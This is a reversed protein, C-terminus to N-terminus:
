YIELCSSFVPPAPIFEPTEAAHLAEDLEEIGNVDGRLYEQLRLSTEELRAALGANRRQIIELGFPKASSLWEKRFLRDFEALTEQYRPLDSVILDRLGADQKEAYYKLLKERFSFGCLILEMVVVIERLSSSLPQSILFQHAEELDKRYMATIERYKSFCFSYIGGQLPDQWFLGPVPIVNKQFMRHLKAAERFLPYSEGCLVRFLRSFLDTDANSAGYAISSAYVLGAFASDMNCFAGADGWVAVLLERVDHKRCAEVCPPIVFESREAFWCFTNYTYIASTMLPKKGFARHREFDEAYRGPDGSSYNWYCLKLNEPLASRIVEPDPFHLLMDSWIMPTLGYQGCIACVRKLHRLFIDAPCEYGHRDLFTGRGLHHAEDMGIHIQKSDLNEAWFRVMKEILAYTEEEDALLIGGMDRIKGYQYHTFLHELHALTQICPTVQVGLSAAFSSIERIEGASYRGRMYGFAPEGPLEYVDETYLMLLHYGMLATRLLYKKLFDVRYVRNRSCDLMTGLMRFHVPESIEAGALACGVGRLFSHVTGASVVASGDRFSVSLTGPDSERFSLTVSPGGTFFEPMAEAVIRLVSAYEEPMTRYDPTFVPM